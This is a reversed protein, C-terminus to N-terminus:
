CSPYVREAWYFRCSVLSSLAKLKGRVFAACSVKM